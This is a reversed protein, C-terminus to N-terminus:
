SEKTLRVLQDFMGLVAEAEDSGKGYQAELKTGAAELIAKAHLLDALVPRNSQIKQITSKPIM